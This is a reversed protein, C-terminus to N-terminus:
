GNTVDAVCYRYRKNEGSTECIGTIEVVDGPRAGIWRAMADQSDIKPLFTPKVLKYEKLVNVKEDETLIRHKPVKRHKSIDFQLHRIEFFQLLQNDTNSIYNRLSTMTTESARSPSVVIIGATYTNEKAYETFNSLEKETVRSKTSFIILISDFTYMKTEDLPSGVPDFTESKHGRATLIQKLTELAREEMGKSPIVYSFLMENKMHKVTFSANPM